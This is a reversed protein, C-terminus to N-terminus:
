FRVLDPKAYMECRNEIAFSKGIKEKFKLYRLIGSPKIILGLAYLFYCFPGNYTLM